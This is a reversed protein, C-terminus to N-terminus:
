ACWGAAQGQCPHIDALEWWTMILIMALAMLAKYSCLQIVADKLGDEVVFKTLKNQM